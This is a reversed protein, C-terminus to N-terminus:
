AGRRERERHLIWTAAQHVHDVVAGAVIGAEPHREDHAGYGCRVLIGTGGVANAVAVDRWRDGIVYSRTLDLGLDRAAAHAMGPLPKRCECEGRWAEIIGKPHHPCYYTRDIPAGAAAFHAEIHAHIREVTPVDVMGQAIGSQNTIMVLAYGAQKLVVLAEAAHSFIRVRELRDIYGSEEILTGDRDFFVAPRLGSM